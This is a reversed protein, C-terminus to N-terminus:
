EFFDGDGRMREHKVLVRVHDDRRRPVLADDDPLQLAPLVLVTVGVAREGAVRVEHRLHDDRRVSLECQLYM